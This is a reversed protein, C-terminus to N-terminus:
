NRLCTVLAGIFQELRSATDQVVSMPQPQMVPMSPTAETALNDFYMNRARKILGVVKASTTGRGPDANVVFEQEMVWRAQPESLQRLTAACREDLGNLAVYQELIAAFAPSHPDHNFRPMSMAAPMTAPPGVVQPTPMQEPLM